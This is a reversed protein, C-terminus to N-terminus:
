EVVPISEIVAVVLGIAFQILSVLFNFIWTLLGFMWTLHTLVADMGEMDWLIILYIPYFVLLVTIWTSIGLDNWIDVGVGYAGGMMDLFHTLTNLLSLILDAMITLFEGVLNVFLQFIALLINAIWTFGDWIYSLMVSIQSFLNSFFRPAGFMAAISDLFGVFSGWLNLGGFLINESLFSGLSAFMTYLAGLLGKNGVVPTATEEFVPSSIGTLPLVQSRTDDFHEFNRIEIEQGGGASFVRVQSWYRWMVVQESSMITTDDSALISAEGMWEKFVDDMPAWNNNLWRLWLDAEDEMAYEYANVRAAGVSSANKDSVWLDVWVEWFGPDGNGTISGHNYMYLDESSVLTQKNLFSVTMNIWVAATFLGNYHVTDPDIDVYWGPEWSGDGFSYDVGYHIDFGDAGTIFHIEPLLKLHQVDRFWIENYMWQNQTGGDDEVHFSFPTGGPLIWAYSSSTSYTNLSFGGKSYIRFFGSSVEFFSEGDISADVAIASGPEWVDLVHQQFWILYTVTTDGGNETWTGARLLVPEGYRSDYTMNSSYIWDTGNSWFVCNVWEFSTPITFSISVNDLGTDSEMLTFTYYRWNTFVWDAGDDDVDELDASLTTTQINGQLRLYVATVRHEGSIDIGTRMKVRAANIKTISNLFSSKSVSSTVYTTSGTQFQTPAGEYASGDWLIPEDKNNSGSVKRHVIRLEVTPTAVWTYATDEFSYYEDVKSSQTYSIYNTDGDDADLWPDSGVHTWQNVINTWSEVNLDETKAEIGAHVKPVSFLPFCTLILLFLLFCIKTKRKM